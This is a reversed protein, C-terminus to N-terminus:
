IEEVNETTGASHEVFYNKAGLNKWATQHFHAAFKNPM